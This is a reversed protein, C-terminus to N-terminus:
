VPKLLKQKMKQKMKMKKRRQKMTMPKKKQSKAVSATDGATPCHELVWLLHTLDAGEWQIRSSMSVAPTLALMRLRPVMMAVAASACVSAVLEVWM